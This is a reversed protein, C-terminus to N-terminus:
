CHRLYRSYVYGYYPSSIRAWGHRYGIVRVHAGPHLGGIIRGWPHTRVRLNRHRTAVRRCSGYSRHGHGYRHALQEEAETPITISQEVSKTNQPSGVAVSTLSMSGIAAISLLTSMAVSKTWNMM